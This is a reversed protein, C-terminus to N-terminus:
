KKFNTKDSHQQRRRKHFVKDPVSWGNNTLIYTKQSDNLVKPVFGCTEENFILDRKDCAVWEGNKFVLIDGEKAGDRIFDSWNIAKAHWSLTNSDYVLVDGSTCEGCYPLAKIKDIDDRTVYSGLGAWKSASDDWSFVTSVNGVDFCASKRNQDTIVWHGKKLEMTHYQIHPVQTLRLLFRYEKGDKRPNLGFCLGFSDGNQFKVKGNHVRCAHNQIIYILIHIFINKGTYASRCIVENNHLASERFFDGLLPSEVQKSLSSLVANTNISHSGLAFSLASQWKSVWNSNDNIIKIMMHACIDTNAVKLKEPGPISFELPEFVDDLNGQIDVVADCRPELTTLDFTDFTQKGFTYNSFIKM